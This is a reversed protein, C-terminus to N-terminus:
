EGRNFISPDDTQGGIPSRAVIVMAPRLLRGNLTWVPSLSQLVSGSPQNDAEREGIAQHLDPSFASGTPDERRIGNRELLGVFGREIEVLGARLGIMSEPEGPMAPPLNTLGRRLNEAAEVVDGAFKQVAFSRTEDIDRKARSRVNAIEAESRVWRDRMDALEATLTAVALVDSPQAEAKPEFRNLEQERRADTDFEAKAHEGKATM